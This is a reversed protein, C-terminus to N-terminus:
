STTTLFSCKWLVSSFYISCLLLAIFVFPVGSNDLVQYLNLVEPLKSMEEAFFSLSVHITINTFKSFCVGPIQLVSFYSSHFFQFTSVLITGLFTLSLSLSAIPLHIIIIQHLHFTFHKPDCSFGFIYGTCAWPSSPFSNIKLEHPM